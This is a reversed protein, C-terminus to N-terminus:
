TGRTWVRLPGLMQFGNREASKLADGREYGVIPHAPLLSALASMFQTRSGFVNTIGSVGAARYVIGGAVITGAADFGGLFAARPDSLLVAHFIRQGSLAGGRWALEWDALGRADDVQRWRLREAVSAAANEDRWLWRADFLPTLGAMRLDLCAFSDKVSIELDPKFRGLEAIFRIQEAIDAAREVTVVNPYYQPTPRPCFWLGCAQEVPLGHSRWVAACWEANNRAAVEDREDPV